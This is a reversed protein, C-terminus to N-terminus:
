STASGTNLDMMGDLIAEEDPDTLVRLMYAERQERPLACEGDWHAENHSHSKVASVFVCVDVNVEDGNGVTLGM